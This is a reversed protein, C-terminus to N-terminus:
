SKVAAVPPVVPAVPAPVVEGKPLIGDDILGQLQAPDNVADLFAAADNGFKARSDAPLSMFYEDAVRVQDLAERYDPVSSLDLYEGERRMLPMIGQKEARRLIVNIDAQDKESQRTLSEERCVTGDAFERRM